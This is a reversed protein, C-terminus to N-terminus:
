REYNIQSKPLYYFGELLGCMFCYCEQLTGIFLNRTGGDNYVLDVAYYGCRSSFKITYSKIGSISGNVTNCWAAIINKKEKTTM